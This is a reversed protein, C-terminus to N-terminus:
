GAWTWMCWMWGALFTSSLETRKLPSRPSKPPLWLYSQLCFVEPFPSTATFITFASIAPSPLSLSSDSPHLSPAHFNILYGLGALIGLSLSLWFFRGTNWLCMQFLFGWLGKSLPFLRFRFFRTRSLPRVNPFAQLVPALLMAHSPLLLTFPLSTVGLLCLNPPASCAPNMAPPTWSQGGAASPPKGPTQLLRETSTNEQLGERGNLSCCLSKISWWYGTGCPQGVQM